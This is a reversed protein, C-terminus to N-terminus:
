NARMENQNYKMISGHPGSHDREYSYIDDTNILLQASQIEYLSVYDDLDLTPLNQIEELHDANRPGIIAASVGQTQLIYAIAINVRSTHYTRALDDLKQTVAKYYAHGVEDIILQYKLHSRNAPDAADKTILGGALVGYCFIAFNHKQALRLMGNLPRPDFLSFQIQNSAVEIGADIVSQTHECDFNTLGIQKIYGADKLDTLWKATQIYDGKTFDWWHFQVLDLCDVGLRRRSRHIVDAVDQFTLDELANLDPVFKTHIRIKSLAEKGYLKEYKRRFEGIIQESDGYIDGTDFVTFGAQAYAILDDIAQKSTINGHGGALQWNGKFIRPIPEGGFSFTPSLTTVGPAILNDFEGNEIAKAGRSVTAVGVGLQHAIKHHPVGTRLLAVIELRKALEGQEKPTTLAKLLKTRETSSHTANLAATVSQFQIM